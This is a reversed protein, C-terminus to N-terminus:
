KNQKSFVSIRKVLYDEIPKSELGLSKEFEGKFANVISNVSITEDINEFFSTSGSELLREIRHRNGARLYDALNISSKRLPMSGQQLIVGDFVRQASAILKKGRATIEGRDVQLFCPGKGAGQRALEKEWSAKVGLKRLGATLIDNIRAFLRGAEVAIGSDDIPWLVSYCLDEGHLLEKGGTPRRVVSIGDRSCLDLILRKERIQNHGLSISPANWTFFRITPISFPYNQGLIDDIGM